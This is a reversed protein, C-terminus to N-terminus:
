LASTAHYLSDVEGASLAKSYFQIDDIWGGFYQTGNGGGGLRVVRHKDEIDDYTNESIFLNGNIYVQMKNEIKSKIFVYHDWVYSNARTGYVRGSGYIDGNDWYVTYPSYNVAAVLRDTYVDPIMAFPMNGTPRTSDVKLWISISLEDTSDFDYLTPLDVYDPDGDNWGRFYLASNDNGFRDATFTAGHLNVKRANGSIDNANGNTFLLSVEPITAIINSKQIAGTENNSKKCGIAFLIIASSLIFIKKM